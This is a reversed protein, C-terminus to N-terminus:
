SLPLHIFSSYTIIFWPPAKHPSIIWHWSSLCYNIQIEGDSTYLSPPSSFAWDTFTRGAQGPSFFSQTLPLQGPTGLSTWLPVSRSPFLLIKSDAQCKIFIPSVDLSQVLAFVTRMEWFSELIKLGGLKVGKIKSHIWTWLGSDLGSKTNLRAHITWCITPACKSLLVTLGWLQLPGPSRGALTLQRERSLPSLSWPIQPEV